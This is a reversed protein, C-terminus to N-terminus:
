AALGSKAFLVVEHFDLAITQAMLVNPASCILAAVL